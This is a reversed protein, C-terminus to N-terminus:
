HGAPPKKKWPMEPVKIPAAPAKPQSMKLENEVEAATADPKDM